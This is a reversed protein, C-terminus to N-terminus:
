AALYHSLPSLGRGAGLLNRSTGDDAIKSSVLGTKFYRNKTVRTVCRNRMDLNISQMPASEDFSRKQEVLIADKQLTPVSLFM